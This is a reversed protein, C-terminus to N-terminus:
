ADGSGYGRGSSSGIECGPRWTARSAACSDRRTPARRTSSSTTSASSTTARPDARRGRRSRLHLHLAVARSRPARRRDARARGPRRRGAEDRRAARAPGLVRLRQAAQEIDPRLQAQGRADARPRRDLPRRERRRRTVAPLLTDTYLERPKGSTTIFGDGAEGVYHSSKPAAAAIWIPVPTEPKDYITARLTRYFEGEFTVRDESWLQRILAVAEKLRTLREGGGPGSRHRDAAGREAVRRHRRRPVRPRARPLRAHRVRARGRGAPLPVDAHLREHRDHHARQARGARRAVPVRRARPRRPPPVAPLPGLDRRQRPRAGRRAARLAAARRPRVARGVGQIRTSAPSRGLQCRTSEPAIPRPARAFPM